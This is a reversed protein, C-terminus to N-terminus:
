ITGEEFAKLEDVTDDTRIIYTTNRARTMGVYLISKLKNEERKMQLIYNSQDFGFLIVNDFQLGEANFVSLFLPTTSTFDHKRLDKNIEYYAHEIDRNGLYISLEAFRNNNPHIIAVRSNKKKLLKIKDAIAKFENEYDVDIFNYEVDNSLPQVLCSEEKTQVLKSDAFFYDRIKILKNTSADNYLYNLQKHVCDNIITERAVKDDYLTQKFDGYCIVRESMRKILEWEKTLYDQVENVIVLGYKKDIDEELLNTLISDYNEHYDADLSVSLRYDKAMKWFFRNKTDVNVREGIELEKLAMSMYGYMANNSVMFLSKINDTEVITRLNYLCFLSKGSWPPGDLFINEDTNTCSNIFERQEDSLQSYPKIISM